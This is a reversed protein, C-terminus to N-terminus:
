TSSTGALVSIRSRASTGAEPRFAVKGCVTCYGDLIAGGCNPTARCREIVMADESTPPSIPTNM